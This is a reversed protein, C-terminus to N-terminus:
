WGVVGNAWQAAGVVLAAIQIDQAHQRGDALDGLVLPVLAIVPDGGAIVLVIHQDHAIALVVDNPRTAQEHLALKNVGETHHAVDLINRHLLILLALLQTQPNNLGQIKNRLLNAAILYKRKESNGKSKPRKSNINEPKGKDHLSM